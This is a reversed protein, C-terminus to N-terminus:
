FGGGMKQIKDLAESASGGMSTQILSVIDKLTINFKKEESLPNSILASIENSSTEM